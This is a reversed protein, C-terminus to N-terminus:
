LSWTQTMGHIKTQWWLHFSRVQQQRVTRKGKHTRSAQHQFFWFLVFVAFETFVSVLSAAQLMQSWYVTRRVVASCTWCFCSHIRASDQVARFGWVGEKMNPLLDCLRYGFAKTYARLVWLQQSQVGSPEWLLLLSCGCWVQVCALLLNCFFLQGIKLSYLDIHDIRCILKQSEKLAEKKGVCRKVGRKDEYTKALTESKLRAEKPVPGLDFENIHWSNSWLCTPKATKVGFHRMSFKQRFVESPM